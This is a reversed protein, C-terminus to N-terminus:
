PIVSGFRFELRRCWDLLLEIDTLLCFGCLLKVLFFEIYLILLLDRYLLVSFDLPYVFLLYLPSFGLRGSRGPSVVSM